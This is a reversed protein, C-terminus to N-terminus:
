KVVCQAVEHPFIRRCQHRKQWMWIFGVEDKVSNVAHQWSFATDATRNRSNSATKKALAQVLNDFRTCSGINLNLAKYLAHLCFIYKVIDEVITPLFKHNCCHRYILAHQSSLMSDKQGFGPFHTVGKLRVSHRGLKSKPSKGSDQAARVKWVNENLWHFNSVSM